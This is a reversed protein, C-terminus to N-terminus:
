ATGCALQLRSTSSGHVVRTGFGKFRRGGLGAQGLHSTVSYEMICVELNPLEEDSVDKHKRKRTKLPMMAEQLPGWLLFLREKLVSLVQANKPDYLNCAEIKTDDLLSEVEDGSWILPLCKGDHGEFLTAFSLEYHPTDDPDRQSECLTCTDHSAADEPVAPRFTSSCSYCFPQSFDRLDAPWHDILKGVSRYKRPENPLGPKAYQVDNALTATPYLIEGVPTIPVNEHSTSVNQNLKSPEPLKAISAAVMAALKERELIAIRRLMNANDNAKRLKISKLNRETPPLITIKRDPNSQDIRLNGELIGRQSYSTHVNRLLVFMDDHLKERGFVAFNDWLTVNFTKRGFPGPWKGAAGYEYDHLSKNETYDTVLLEFANERAPFTKVIYAYIDYFHKDELDRITKVKRQMTTPPVRQFVPAPILEKPDRGDQIKFWDALNKVYATVEPSLAEMVRGGPPGVPRLGNADYMHWRSTNNTWAQM